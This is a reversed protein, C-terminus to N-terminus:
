ENCFYFLWVKFFFLILQCNSFFFISCACAAAQSQTMLPRSFRLCQLPTMIIESQWYGWICTFVTPFFIMNLPFFVWGLSWIIERIIKEFAIDLVLELFPLCVLSYSVSLLVWCPSPTLFELYYLLWVCVSFYYHQCHKHLLVLGPFEDPIKIFQFSLLLLCEFLFCMILLGCACQEKATVTGTLTIAGLPM